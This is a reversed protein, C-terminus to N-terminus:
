DGIPVAGGDSPALSQSASSDHQTPACHFYAKYARFFASYDSFGCVSSVTGASEGRALMARAALLRKIMVYRWLTAGTAQRFLRSVQSRSLFFAASVSQLSLKEFMHSNVYSVLQAATDQAPAPARNRHDYADCLEALLGLLRATIHARPEASARFAESAFDAFLRRGVGTEAAYRNDQGLPRNLFPRLLRHAPDFSDLLSASFHIAIREYPEDPEILLKHTEAIRMIMLDNPRLPYQTGEVLYSCKGSLFYYVEYMEHAHIPFDQQAPSGDLSHHCYLEGDRYSFLSPQM